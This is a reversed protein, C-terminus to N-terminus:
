VLKRKEHLNSINLHNWIEINRNVNRYTFGAVSRLFKMKASKTKVNDPATILQIEVSDDSQPIKIHAKYKEV